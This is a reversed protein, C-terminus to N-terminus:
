PEPSARLVGITRDIMDVVITTLDLRYPPNFLMTFPDIDKMVLGGIAPPPSVTITHFCGAELVERRVEVSNQNLFTRLAPIRKVRWQSLKDKYEELAAIKDENSM